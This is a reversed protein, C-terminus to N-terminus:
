FFSIKKKKKKDFGNHNSPKLTLFTLFNNTKTMFRRIKVPQPWRQTTATVNSSEMDANASRPHSAYGLSPTLIDCVSVCVCVCLENVCFSSMQDCSAHRHEQASKALDPMLLPVFVNKGSHQLSQSVPHSWRM